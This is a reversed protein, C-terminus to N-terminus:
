KSLWQSYGQAQDGIFTHDGYIYPHTQYGQRRKEVVKSEAMAAM